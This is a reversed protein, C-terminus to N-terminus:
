MSENNTDEKLDHRLVKRELVGAGGGGERGGGGWLRGGGADEGKRVRGWLVRGEGGRGM